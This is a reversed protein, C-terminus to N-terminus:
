LLQLNNHTSVSTNTADFTPARWFEGDDQPAWSPATSSCLAWTEVDIEVGSFCCLQVYPWHGVTQREGEVM